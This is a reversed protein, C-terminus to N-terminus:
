LINIGMLGWQGNILCTRYKINIKQRASFSPGVGVKDRVAEAVYEVWRAWSSFIELNEGCKRTNCIGCPFCFEMLNSVIMHVSVLKRPM